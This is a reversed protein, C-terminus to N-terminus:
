GAKFAVGTNRNLIYRVRGTGGRYEVCTVEIQDTAALPRYDTVNACLFGNLNLMTALMSELSQSTQARAGYCIALAIAAVVGRASGKFRM